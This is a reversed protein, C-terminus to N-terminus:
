PKFFSIIERIVPISLLQALFNAAILNYILHLIIGLTLYVVPVIIILWNQLKHNFGWQFRDINQTIDSLFISFLIIIVSIIITGTILASWDSIVNALVRIFKDTLIFILLIVWSIVIERQHRAFFGNIDDILDIVLGM